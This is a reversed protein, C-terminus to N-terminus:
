AHMWRRGRERELRWHGKEKELQGLTTRAVAEKREEDCTKKERKEKKNEISQKKKRRKQAKNKVKEGKM